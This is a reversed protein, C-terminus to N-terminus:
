ASGQTRPWIQLKLRFHNFFMENNWYTIIVNYLSLLGPDSFHFM